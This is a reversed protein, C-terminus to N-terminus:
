PSFTAKRPQAVSLKLSLTLTGDLLSVQRTASLCSRLGGSLHQNRNGAKQAVPPIRPRGRASVVTFLRGDM